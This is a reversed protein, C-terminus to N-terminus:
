GNLSVKIQFLLVFWWSFNAYLFFRLKKSFRVKNAEHLLTWRELFDQSQLQAVIYQRLQKQEVTLANFRDAQGLCACDRRMQDLEFLSQEAGKRMNVMKDQFSKERVKGSMGNRRHYVKPVSLRVAGGMLIARVLFCQDEAPVNQGLPNLALLRRTLMHSAGFQLPRKSAWQELTIGNLEDMCKIGLVKGGIDMDFADTGILDPIRDRALWFAVCASCRDSVSIDDGAASFVVDGRTLAFATEYNAALGMNLTNQHLVLRKPGKYQVAMETLVQWTGDKSGDDSVVIELNEYDQDLLSQLAEKVFAEQNYTLLVVSASVSYLDSQM